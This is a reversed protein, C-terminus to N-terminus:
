FYEIVFVRSRMGSMNSHSAICPCANKGPVVTKGVGSAIDDDHSVASKRSTAATVAFSTATVPPCWTKLGTSHRGRSMRHPRTSSVNPSSGYRM